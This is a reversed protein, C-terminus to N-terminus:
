GPSRIPQPDTRRRLAFEGPRPLEPMGTRPNVVLSACFATGREAEMTEVLRLMFQRRLTRDYSQFHASGM